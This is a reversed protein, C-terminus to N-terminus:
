RIVWMECRTQGQRRLFDELTMSGLHKDYEGVKGARNLRSSGNEPHALYLRDIEAMLALNEESEHHRSKYYYSSRAVDLVQCQDTIPLELTPEIMERRQVSSCDGRATPALFDREMELRPSRRISRMPTWAPKPKPTNAKLFM